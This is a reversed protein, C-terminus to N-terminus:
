YERHNLGGWLKRSQEMCFANVVEEDIGVFERDRYLLRGNIVTTRCSRGELGFLLHGDINEAGLPTFPSYDM